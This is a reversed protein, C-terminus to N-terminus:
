VAFPQYELCEGAMQDRLAEVQEESMSNIAESYYATIISCYRRIQCTECNSEKEDSRCTCEECNCM